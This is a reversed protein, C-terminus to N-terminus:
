SKLHPRAGAIRGPQLQPLRRRLRAAPRVHGPQRAVRPCMGTRNIQPSGTERDADLGRSSVLPPLASRCPMPSPLGTRGRAPKPAPAHDPSLQIRPLVEVSGRSLRQNGRPGRSGYAFRGDALVVHASSPRKRPAAAPQEAM